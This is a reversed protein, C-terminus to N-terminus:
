RQFEGHPAQRFALKENHAFFRAAAANLVSRYRLCPIPKEIEPTIDHNCKFAGNGSKGSYKAMALPLRLAPTM